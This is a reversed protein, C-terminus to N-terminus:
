PDLRLFEAEVVNEDSRLLELVEAATYDKKSYSVLWKDYSNDMQKIIRIGHQERYDNFWRSLQAGNKLQIVIKSDDFQEKKHIFTSDSAVWGERSEAIQELLFQLKHVQSPRERKGVITKSTDKEFYSITITPLDPIQSEYFDDYQYLNAEKFESKLSKLKEKTLQLTHKGLKYCHDIGTFECHGNNYIDLEYIPCSGFCGGKNMSIIIDDTTLEEISKTTSCSWLVIVFGMLLFRM